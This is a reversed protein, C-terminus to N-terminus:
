GDRRRAAVRGGPRGGVRGIAGGRSTTRTRALRGIGVSAPPRNARTLAAENGTGEPSQPGPIPLSSMPCRDVPRTRAPIVAQATATNDPAKSTPGITGVTAASAVIPVVVASPGDNTLGFGTPRVESM